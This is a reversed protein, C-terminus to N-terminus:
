GEALASQTNKRKRMFILASLLTMPIGIILIEMYTYAIVWLPNKYREQQIALDAQQQALETASHGAAKAQAMMHAAYKDMFDPIFVYFDILWAVVYLTSAVLTILGGIQLAKGFSIAGGNFKDRYNKTGVFVMSFALIMSGFGLLMSGEYNADDHCKAATVLMMTSIFVGAILGFVWVNRKM